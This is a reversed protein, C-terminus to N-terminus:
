GVFIGGSIFFSSFPKFNQVQLLGFKTNKLFSQNFKCSYNFFLGRPDTTIEQLFKLWLIPIYSFTQNILGKTRDVFQKLKRLSRLLWNKEKKNYYQRALKLYDMTTQIEDHGLWDKVPVVKLDYELLRAIACWHRSIYPHYDPWVSKTYKSLMVRLSDKTFPKGDPKLYVFDKSYQNEVKPRWYDLWNKFSKNRTNTWIFDDPIIIRQRNGKKPETITLTDTEFDVDNIKLITPESPVRWGILFNHTHLYQILSNTYPDKSYNHYILKRVTEPKPVKRDKPKPTIPPKYRILDPNINCAKLYRKIAKLNNKIVHPSINEIEERYKFHIRIQEPNIDKLDIPVINHLEMNKLYNLTHRITEPSLREEIKLYNEIETFNTKKPNITSPGALELYKRLEYAIKVLDEGINPNQKGINPNIKKKNKCTKHEEGLYNSDPYTVNSDFNDKLLNDQNM